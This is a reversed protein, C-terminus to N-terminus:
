RVGAGLALMADGYSYFRYGRRLATAYLERVRERGLFAAVLVLLSSRPLHFNTILGDIVRFRYGPRIFLRAIGRGGRLTGGAAAGELARITTTGVAIVRRGDARAERIAAATASPIEYAEGELDHAALDECRIPQFTAPGVHLTVSVITVGQLRLRDLLETTFHLGATPAAISGPSRAYVTQYRERDMPEPGGPRRIYPPLPVEGIRSLATAVDGPARFRLRIRGAGSSGVVEASVGDGFTIEAGVSVRRGPRVLATWDAGGEARLLLAEIAGGSERRGRLRVPEVRSDNVVLLDGGRIFRPLDGFLGHTVGGHGPEVVLLRAGDRLPAPHQAIAGPPLEYDYSALSRDGTAEGTIARAAGAGPETEGTRM